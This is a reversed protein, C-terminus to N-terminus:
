LMERAVSLSELLRYQIPNLDQAEDVMVVQYQLKLRERTPESNDLLRVARAELETFDLAQLRSMEAHMRGWAECALHVLGLTHTLAEAEALGDRKGRAWVPVRLKHERCAKQVRDQLDSGEILEFTLRVDPLLSSVLTSEWLAELREANWYRERTQEYSVPSSRLEQLVDEVASELLSYPSRSERTNQRRGALFAILAEAEPTEALDQAIAERICALSLRSSQGEDLIEFAPDLGAELSNERLLRECFSHITQIPGTEAIQAEPMMGAERLRGVIRKKMEAAAKKTFTITLIQDPRLGEEIVHRLYREVLVRTKGAGAAATVVFKAEASEVVVRQEPSLETM